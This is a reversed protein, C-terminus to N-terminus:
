QAPQLHWVLRFRSWMGAHAGPLPGFGIGGLLRAAAQDFGYNPPNDGARACDALEGNMTWRCDVDSWGEVGNDRARAPYAAEVRDAFAALLAKTLAAQDGAPLTALDFINQPPYTMANAQPALAVQSEAPGTGITNPEVSQQSLQQAHELKQEDTLPACNVCRDRIVPEVLRPQPIVPLDIVLAADPHRNDVVRTTVVLPAYIAGYKPDSAYPTVLVLGRLSNLYFLIRADSVPTEARRGGCDPLGNTTQHTWDMQLVTQDRRTVRWKGRVQEQGSEAMLSGGPDLHWHEVCGSQANAKDIKTPDLDYSGSIDPVKDPVKAQAPNSLLFVALSAIGLFNLLYGYM